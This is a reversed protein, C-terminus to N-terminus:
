AAIADAEKKSDAATLQSFCVNDLRWSYLTPTSLGLYIVELLGVLVVM